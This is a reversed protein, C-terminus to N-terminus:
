FFGGLQAGKEHAMESEEPVISQVISSNHLKASLSNLIEKRKEGRIGAAHLIFEYDTNWKTMLRGDIHFNDNIKRQLVGVPLIQMHERIDMLNSM